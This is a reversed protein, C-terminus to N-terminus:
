IEKLIAVNFFSSGLFEIFLLLLSLLCSFLGVHVMRTERLIASGFIEEIVRMSM